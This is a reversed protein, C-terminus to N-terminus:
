GGTLSLRLRDDAAAQAVATQTEIPVLVSVVVRGGVTASPREVSWVTARALVVAEVQVQELGTPGAAVALVDVQDGPRLSSGPAAGPELAAGVVSMGDPIISDPSLFLGENLITGAPIPGRVAQGVIRSQEGVVITAADGVNSIEVARIDGGSVVHGPQLDTAAVLVVRTTTLSGFLVAGALAAGVVFLLGVVVLMPRRQRPGQMSSIAPDGPGTARRGAPRAPVDTTLSTDPTRVAM